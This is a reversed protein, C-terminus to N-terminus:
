SDASPPRQLEPLSWIPGLDCQTLAPGPGLGGPTSDGEGAGKCSDTENGDEKGVEREQETAEAREREWGRGLQSCKELVKALPFLHKAVGPLEASLSTIPLCPQKSAQPKQSYWTHAWTGLCPPLGKSLCAQTGRMGTYVGWSQGKKLPLLLWCKRPSYVAGGWDLGAMRAERHQRGAWFKRSPEASPCRVESKKKAQEGPQRNGKEEM